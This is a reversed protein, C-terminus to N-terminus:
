NTKIKLKKTQIILNLKQFYEQKKWYIKIKIISDVLRSQFKKVNTLKMHNNKIVEIKYILTKSLLTTLLLKSGKM